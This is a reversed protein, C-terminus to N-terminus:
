KHVEEISVVYKEAMGYAECKACIDYTFAYGLDLHSSGDRKTM